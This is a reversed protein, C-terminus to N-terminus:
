FVTRSRDSCPVEETLVRYIETLVRYENEDNEARKGKDALVSELPIM